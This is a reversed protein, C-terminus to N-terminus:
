KIGFSKKIIKKARTKFRLLIYSLKQRFPSKILNIVEREENSLSEKGAQLVLERFFPTSENVFQGRPIFVKSITTLKYNMLARNIEMHNDYREILRSITEYLVNWQEFSMTSLRGSNERFIYNYCVLEPMINIKRSNSALALLLLLDENLTIKIEPVPIDRFLEKRYIKAVPGITTEKRLIAKFYEESSIVGQVKHKYLSRNNLNLTGVVIDVDPKIGSFLGSICEKTISDDSDMFMIWDGMSYDVGTLRAKYAGQNETHVVRIRDDQLAIKEAVEPTNDRSGDDVIILEWDDFNQNIVSQVATYLLEGINYAPIIISLKM